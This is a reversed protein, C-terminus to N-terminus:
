VGKPAFTEKPSGSKPLCSLLISLLAGLLLFLDLTVGLRVVGFLGYFLGAAGLILSWSRSELCNVMLSLAIIASITPSPVFTTPAGNFYTVQADAPLFYPNVWGSVFLLIAFSVLWSSAIHVPEHPLHIAIWFLAIATLGTFTGDFRDDSLWAVASVAFLPLVLLISSVRKSPRLGAALAIALTAFYLHWLIAFLQWQNALPSLASFIEEPRSM